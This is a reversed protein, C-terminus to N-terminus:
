DLMRSIQEELAKGRLKKAVIKGNEDLIFSAPISRGTIRFVLPSGSM